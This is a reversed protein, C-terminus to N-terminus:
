RTGRVVRVVVDDLWRWTANAGARSLGAPILMPAGNATRGPVGNPCVRAGFDAMTVDKTRTSAYRALVGNLWAVAQRQRTSATLPCPATALVFRAGTATLAFRAYDLVIVLAQEYERTGVRLVKAPMRRDRVENSGIMLVAVQPQLGLAAARYKDVWGSCDPARSGADGTAVGPAIGCGKLYLTVGYVDASRYGGLAASQLAYATIDGAVLVRLAGAPARTRVKAYVATTAYLDQLAKNEPRVLRVFTNVGGAVLAALLVISLAATVVRLPWRLTRYRHHYRRAARRTRRFRRKKRKVTPPEVPGEDVAGRAVWRRHRWRRWRRHIRRYRRALM